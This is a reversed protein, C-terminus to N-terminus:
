WCWGSRSQLCRLREIQTTELHPEWARLCQQLSEWQEELVPGWIKLDVRGKWMFKTEKELAADDISYVRGDPPVMFNQVVTDHAGVVKRFALALLIPLALTPLKSDDWPFHFERQPVETPPDFPSSAVRRELTRYDFLCDWILYDGQIRMNAHPLGLRQKLM